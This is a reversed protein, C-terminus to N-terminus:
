HYILISNCLKLLDSNYNRLKVWCYVCYGMFTLPVQGGVMISGSSKRLKVQDNKQLYVSFVGNFPAYYDFTDHIDRYEHGNVLIKIQSDADKFADVVFVYNGTIPVTYIGAQQDFYGGVVYGYGTVDGDRM